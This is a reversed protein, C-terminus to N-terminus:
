RKRRSDPPNTSRASSRGSKETTTQSALWQDFRAQKDLYVDLAKLGDEVWLEIEYEALYELKGHEPM